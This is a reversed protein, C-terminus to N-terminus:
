AVAQWRAVVRHHRPATPRPPHQVPRRRSADGPRAHDPLPALRSVRALGWAVAQWRAVVRHHRLATPRRPAPSAPTPQGRRPSCPGAPPRATFSPCSGMCCGAVPGRGPPPATRDPPPTGPRGADAPRAPAPTARCPPLRSRRGLGWAVAQWRAVVRHHRPASPRPISSWGADAPMPPASTPQCHPSGDSVSLVGHLLRGGPWSGTTARHPRAPSAPGAPTPQCRRPPRPQCHPSGHFVPLVGHLLRGGPWSGTTACHPRAAPRQAPRRRSAEGPRAHAPLPALRSRRALGWAVAQWQAVVRHHRPATPRHPAPGVPTPQGRRPPRRGAPPSGRVVALVGHLLRGGPWSGTTARHPRAPSAPGAPTPQCRRPPRRSATPRATPSPCSGMCCGAVPGRGPPPATRDPPPHQVLRRRSADAPRARSATPRATFCPCSGM